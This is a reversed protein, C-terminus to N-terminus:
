RRRRRLLLLPLVAWLLARPAGHATSCSGCGSGGEGGCGACGGGEGSCGGGEGGCGTAEECGPITVEGGGSTDGCGVGSLEIPGIEIPSVLTPDIWGFAGLWDSEEGVVRLDLDSLTLGNIGPLAFPPVLGADLDLGAAGLGASVLTPLRRAMAEPVETPLWDNYTVSVGLHTDLNFDVDVILNGGEIYVDVGARAYLGHGWMRALRDLEDGYVDVNLDARLEPGGELELRPPEDATIQIDLVKPEPWLEEVLEPIETGLLTNTDLAIPALEALNLCLVGAQWVAYLAENALDSSVLLAVHYPATTGPMLGTLPPMDHASPVYAGAHPVCPGYAATGFQADFGILLGTASVELTTAELSMDISRGLVDLSQEIAVSQAFGDLASQLQAELEDIQGELVGDLITGLLDVGYGQLTELADGLVCGTDVPNGFNGHTFTFDAVQATIQGEQLALEVGLDVNLPTPQLGFQCTEDLQLVCPGQATIEVADSWLTMGIHVDLRGDTPTISVDDASIQVVIPEVEYILTGPENEDCDVEGSLGTVAIQTPLVNAIGDGLSQLGTASVHAALAPSLTPAPPPEDARAGFPVHAALLILPAIRTAIRM